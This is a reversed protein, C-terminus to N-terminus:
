HLGVVEHMVRNKGDQKVSYMLSDAKRMIEQFTIGATSKYTAVGISFTVPWRNKKMVALLEERLKHSVIHASRAGTERLLVAFEDGGLRGVTDTTRINKEITRSVSCLLSDGIHHGFHDNVAKFNDLDVYVMTLPTSYRHTREIEIAALECFSRRNAIGTLFDKRAFEKELELLGKLRSLVITIILFVILRFSGNLYPILIHSYAEITMLDVAIWTVASAVSMFIGARRGAFWTIFCILVVYFLSYTYEPGALYRVIAVLIALVLGSAVLLIRFYKNPNKVDDKM